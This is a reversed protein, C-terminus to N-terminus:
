MAIHISQKWPAPIQQLLRSLHVPAAYNPFRWAPSPHTALGYETLDCIPTAASHEGIARCDHLRGATAQLVLHRQCAEPAATTEWGGFQRGTAEGTCALMEPRNLRQKHARRLAADACKLTRARFSANASQFLQELSRDNWAIAM